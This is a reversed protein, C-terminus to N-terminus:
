SQQQNSIAKPQGSRNQSEARPRLRRKQLISIIFCTERVFLCQISATYQFRLWVAWYFALCPLFCLPTGRLCKVYLSSGLLYRHEEM